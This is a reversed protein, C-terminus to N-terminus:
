INLPLQHIINLTINKITFKRIAETRVCAWIPEVSVNAPKHLAALHLSEM